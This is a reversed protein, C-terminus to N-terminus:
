KKTLAACGRVDVTKAEPADLKTLAACGRVDVYDAKPADLKTLAACGSADVHGNGASTISTVNKWDMDMGVGLQSCLHELLKRRTPWKALVIARYWNEGREDGPEIRVSLREPEDMVWECERYSGSKLKHTQQASAHSQLNHAAFVDDGVLCFSLCECM